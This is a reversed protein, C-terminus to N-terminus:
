EFGATCAAAKVKKFVIFGFSMSPLVLFPMPPDEKPPMEPLNLNDVLTLEVGNLSM